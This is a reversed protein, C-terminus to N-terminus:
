ESPSVTQSPSPSCLGLVQRARGQEVAPVQSVGPRPGRGPADAPANRGQPQRTFRAARKRQEHTRVPKCRLRALLPPRGGSFSLEGPPRADPALPGPRRGKVPVRQMGTWVCKRM